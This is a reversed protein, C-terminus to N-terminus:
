NDQNNDNNDNNETDETDDNSSGADSLEPLREDPITVTQSLIFNEIYNSSVVTESPNQTYEANRPVPIIETGNIYLAKRLLLHMEEPVAFLLYAPTRNEATNEFVHQGASDRVDLVEISEILRGLLLKGDNATAKFYLDIYNGPYISNGYTSDNNVPLSVVTYGDPIDSFASDPMDEFNVLTSAYFMSGEPIVTNYNAYKDVIQDASTVTNDQIMSAPVDMYGIMEATIRTRPQIDQTAYPVRVPNTQSDIRWSYGIWIIAVILIVVIITVTNKNKIFKKFAVGFNGM